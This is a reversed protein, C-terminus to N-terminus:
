APMYIQELLVVLLLVAAPAAATTKIATEAALAAVALPTGKVAKTATEATKVVADSAKKATQLGRAVGAPVGRWAPLKGIFVNLSGIGTLVPPIPHSVNDTVRAAPKGM